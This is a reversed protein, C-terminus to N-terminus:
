SIVIINFAISSLVFATVILLRYIIIEANLVRKRGNFFDNFITIKSKPGYVFVESLVYNEGNDARVEMTIKKLYYTKKIVDVKTLEKVNMIQKVNVKNKTALIYHFLHILQILLVMSIIALFLFGFYNYGVFNFVKGMVIRVIMMSPLITLIVKLIKM